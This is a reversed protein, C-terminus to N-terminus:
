AYVDEPRWCFRGRVQLAKEKIRRARLELEQQRSRQLGKCVRVGLPASM